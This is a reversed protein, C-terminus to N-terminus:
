GARRSRRELLYDTLDSGDNREPFLDVVRVTAAVGDLEAAVRAAAARGQWDADFVVTVRREAFRRAWAPKWGAVGPIAIAPRGISWAAVADPEGEVLLLEGTPVSEPAPFLERCSGADALMKARSRRGTAAYRLLGVLDGQADRIPFTVREADFGLGLRRVAAPTWGRLAGLQALLQPDDLLWRQWRELEREGVRLCV